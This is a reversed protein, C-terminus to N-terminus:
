ELLPPFEQKDRVGQFINPSSVLPPYPALMCRMIIPVASMLLSLALAPVLGEIIGLVVSPLKPIWHLFFINDSLFKVNSIMGILACPLSWFIVMAAILGQILFRKIIRQWWEM